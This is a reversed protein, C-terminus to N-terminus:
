RRVRVGVRVEDGSWDGGAVSSSYEVHEYRAFMMAEPGLYYELGLAATVDSETIEAGQYDRTAYAIGASGILHRRFAHRWELGASRTLAGSSGALTTEAVDSRAQLLVANLGDVRWALNADIIVGEIAGLRQDRPTQRGFGVSVEGRVVNGRNGFSLGARYREGDSDRRLGDSASPGAHERQDIAAEAFATLAPKFEWGLRVAQERITVDRGRDVIIGGADAYDQASVAGRLQVVLRNFRTNLAAAARDTTIDSRSRGAIGGTDIRGRAEQALEHAGLVEINTRRTVDLRGRAELRYARDNESTLDTFASANGTAAFELAHTRWESRLRLTPRLYGAVDGRAPSARLVNSLWAGGAEVEPLAVFSGVRIGRQQWPEFRYLRAPRRDLIPDVEAQFLEPDFGAPPDNARGYRSSAPEEDAEDGGASALLPDVDESAVALTAPPAGPPPADDPLTGRMTAPPRVPAPPPTRAREAASGRLPATAPSSDDEAPPEIRLPPRPTERQRIPPMPGDGLVTPRLSQANAGAAAVLAALSVAATATARIARTPGGPM